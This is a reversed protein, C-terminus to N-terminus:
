KSRNAEYDDIIKILNPRGKLQERMKKREEDSMSGLGMRLTSEATMAPEKKEPQKWRFNKYANGIKKAADETGPVFPPIIEVEKRPDGKQEMHREERAQVKEERYQQMWELIIPGDMREFIQSNGVKYRGFKARDVFVVIDEPSLDFFKNLVMSSIDMLGNKDPKRKVQYFNVLDALQAFVFSLTLEYSEQSGLYNQISDDLGSRITLKSRNYPKVLQAVKEKM